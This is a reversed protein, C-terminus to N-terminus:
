GDTRGHGPNQPRAPPIRGPAGTAEAERAMQLWHQAMNLWSTRAQESPAKQARAFCDEANKRLFDARAV